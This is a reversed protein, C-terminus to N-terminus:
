LAPWGTGSPTHANSGCRPKRETFRMENFKEGLTVLLDTDHVMLEHHLELPSMNLSVCLAEMTTRFGALLVLSMIDPRAVLQRLSDTLSENMETAHLEDYEWLAAARLLLAEFIHSSFDSVASTVQDIHAIEHPEMDQSM